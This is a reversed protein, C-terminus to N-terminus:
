SGEDLSDCSVMLGWSDMGSMENARYDRRRDLGRSGEEDRSMMWEGSKDRRLFVHLSAVSAGILRKAIRTLMSDLERIRAGGERERPQSFGSKNFLRYQKAEPKEPKILCNTVPLIPVKFQSQASGEHLM